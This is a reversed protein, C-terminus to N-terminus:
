GATLALLLFGFVTVFILPKATGKAV